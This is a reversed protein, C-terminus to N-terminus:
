KKIMEISTSFVQDGVQVATGPAVSNPVIDGISTLPEVSTVKIKGIAKGNRTVTMESDKTLGNNEGVNLVVFNWSPNIAAIKGVIAGAPACLAEVSTADPPPLGPDKKVSESSNKNSSKKKTAAGVPLAPAKNQADTLAQITVDKASLEKKKQELEQDKLGLQKQAEALDNEAKTRAQQADALAKQSQEESNAQSAMKEKFVNLQENLKAIEQQQQEMSVRNHVLVSQYSTYNWYGLGATLLTLSIAIYLFIKSMVFFTLVNFSQFTLSNRISYFIEKCCPFVKTTVKM